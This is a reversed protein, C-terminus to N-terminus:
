KVSALLSVTRKCDTDSAVTQKKGLVREVRVKQGLEENEATAEWRRFVAVM